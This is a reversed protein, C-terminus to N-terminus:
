SRSCVPHATFRPNRDLELLQFMPSILVHSTEILGVHIKNVPIAVKLESMEPHSTELTMLIFKYNLSANVLWVNEPHSTESHLLHLSREFSSRYGEEVLVRLPRQRQLNVYSVSHRHPRDEVTVDRISTELTAVMRYVNEIVVENLWSVQHSMKFTVLM